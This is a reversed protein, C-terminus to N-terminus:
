SRRLVIPLAKTSSHTAGVAWLTQGDPSFFANIGGTGGMSERCWSEDTRRFISTDNAGVWTTHADKAWMSFFVARPPAAGFVWRGDAGLSAFGPRASTSHGIAFVSGMGSGGIAAFEAAQAIQTTAFISGDFHHIAGDGVMWVDNPSSAWVAHIPGPPWDPHHVFAGSESRRPGDSAAVWVQDSAAAFVGVLDATTGSPPSSWSMGDWHLAAGHIGVAWVDSASSGHVAYLDENTQGPTQDTWANGDFHLVTGRGGVAWIDTATAGWIGGLGQAVTNPIALPGSWAAPGPCAVEAVPPPPSFVDLRDAEGCALLGLWGFFSAGRHRM